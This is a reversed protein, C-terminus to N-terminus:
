LKKVSIELESEVHIPIEMGQASIKQEIKQSIKSKKILGTEVDIEMTGTQTGDITIEAGPLSAIGPNEANEKITSTLEVNASGKKVSKLTYTNEIDMFIPGTVNNTSTWTEGTKITKGPFIKFGQELNEAVSEESFQSRLNQAIMEGGEGLETIITSFIEDFGQVNSVKGESDLDMTFSKKLFLSMVFAFMNTSDLPEKSDYSLSVMQNDNAMKIHDYTTKVTMIGDKVDLVEMEYGWTISQKFKITDGMMEQRINQENSFTYYYKKGKELNLKLDVSKSSCSVAVLLIFAYLVSSILKQIKLM